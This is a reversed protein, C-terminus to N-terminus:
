ETKSKRKAVLYIFLAVMAFGLIPSVIFGIVTFVFYFFFGILQLLFSATRVAGVAVGGIIEGAVAGVEHSVSKSGLERPRTSSNDTATMLGSLFGSALDTAIAVVRTWLPSSKQVGVILGISMGRELQAGEYPYQGIVRGRLKSSAQVEFIAVKPVLGLDSVTRSGAVISMGIIDPVLISPKDRPQFASNDYMRRKEDNSLTEYALQVLKFEEPDGGVDPHTEKVRSRYALKLEQQSCGKAVGLIVYFDAETPADAGTAQGETSESRANGRILTGCICVALLIPLDLQTVVACSPCRVKM